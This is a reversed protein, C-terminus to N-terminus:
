QCIKPVFPRVLDPANQHRDARPLVLREWADEAEREDDGLPGRAQCQANTCEIWCARHGRHPQPWRQISTYPSGCFPCNSRAAHRGM